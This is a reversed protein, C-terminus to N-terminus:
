SERDHSKVEGCSKRPKGLLNLDNLIRVANMSYKKKPNFRKTSFDMTSKDEQVEYVLNRGRFANVEHTGLLKSLDIFLGGFQKNQIKMVGPRVGKWHKVKLLQKAIVNKLFDFYTSLVTREKSLHEERSMKILDNPNALDHNKELWKLESADFAKPSITFLPFILLNGVRLQKQPERWNPFNERCLFLTKFDM